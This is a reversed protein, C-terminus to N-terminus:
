PCVFVKSDIAADCADDDDMKVVEKCAQEVAQSQQDNGPCNSCQDELDGCPDDCAVAGLGLVGALIIGRTM